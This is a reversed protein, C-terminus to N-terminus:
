PGFVSIYVTLAGQNDALGAGSVHNLDDNIVFFIEGLFPVNQPLSPSVQVCGLRGISTGSFDTMLLCGEAVGPLAYEGTANPHAGDGCWDHFGTAPNQTWTGTVLTIVVSNNNTSQVGADQPPQNAQVVFTKTFQPTKLSPGTRQRLQHLPFGLPM